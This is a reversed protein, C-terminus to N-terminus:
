TLRDQSVRRMIIATLLVNQSIEFLVYLMLGLYLSGLRAGVLLCLPRYVLTAIGFLLSKREMGTVILATSTPSLVLSSFIMPALIRALVGSEGWSKGLCIRFIQEGFLTMLLLPGVGLLSLVTWTKIMLRKASIRDPWVVAFRKYFVQAVATGVLTGPMSLLSYAMRYHGTDEKSFWMTILFYPLQTSVVDLLSTPLLYLPSSRHKHAVRFLTPDSFRLSCTQLACSVTAAAGMAVASAQAYILGNRIGFMGTAVGCFASVVAQTLRIASMARYEARRNLWATFVTAIAAAVGTALALPLFGGLAPLGLWDRYTSPLGIVAGLGVLGITLALLTALSVLTRAEHEAKPIVIKVDYRLTLFSSFIAAWATFVALTGYEAPTFLRSLLPAVGISIGQAMLTGSALWAASRM